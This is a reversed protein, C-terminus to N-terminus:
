RDADLEVVPFRINYKKRGLVIAHAGSYAKVDGVYILRGRDQLFVHYITLKVSRM